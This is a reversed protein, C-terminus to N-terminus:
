KGFSKEGAFFYGVAALGLLLGGALLWPSTSGMAGLGGLSAPMNRAWSAGSTVNNMGSAIAYDRAPVPLAGLQNVNFRTDAITSSRAAMMAQEPSMPVGALRPNYQSSAITRALGQDLYDNATRPSAGLGNLMAITEM